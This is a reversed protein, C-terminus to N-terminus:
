KTLQKIFEKLIIEQEEVTCSTFGFESYLKFALKDLKKVLM